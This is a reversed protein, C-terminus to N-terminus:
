KAAAADAIEVACWELGVQLRDAPLSTQFLDALAVQRLVERVRYHVEALTGEVPSVHRETPAADDQVLDFAHDFRDMLEAVNIRQIGDRIVYGGRVGRHSAVFGERCLDKLINAVFSRSLGFWSAVERACAGEQKRQLYVLILIAYGVKRSMLAM